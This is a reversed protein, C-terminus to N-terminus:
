NLLRLQLTRDIWFAERNAVLSRRKHRKLFSTQIQIPKILLITNPQPPAIRGLTELRTEERFKAQRCNGAPQKKSLPKKIRKLIDLRPCGRCAKRLKGCCQGAHQGIRLRTVGPPSRVTMNAAFRLPCQCPKVPSFSGQREYQSQGGLSRRRM